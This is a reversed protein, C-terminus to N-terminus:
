KAERVDVLMARVAIRQLYTGTKEDYSDCTILTLYAKDEHRLVTIDNPEVFENSVVKYTYRYGLNYVFIYEGSNLSKLNYLVGPKGNINIAHGMLVSNGTWTPYATGNLWGVQNQLWSVDWDGDKLQIGVIPTKVKLVPIEITLGISNYAPRAEVDLRTVTNPAFGTVPILFLSGGFGSSSPSSNGRSRNGGGGEGEDDDGTDTGNGDGGGDGGLPTFTLSSSAHYFNVPSTPDYFRETAFPNPPTSFSQPATRNGPISTWEVNAVNTVIGNAPITANGVVNFRVIGRANAPLRTFTSWEARITRTVADYACSVDPDQEGASCDLSNTVYDLSTPLVDSVVVDFADTNSAATNSIVLTITAASGNAVFNVNATKAITLNPELITVAAQAPGFSGVSSSWAASNNLTEGDVNTAIDLVAARYTLTLTVFDQGGNELTGLEFTVRRDVDAPDTSLTPLVNPNACISPFGGAVDTTLGPADISDCGVFALGQQMTDVITANPYRGPPILVSVQYTIIEGIAANFGNTFTESTGTIAKLFGNTLVFGFDLSPNHTTGTANTVTTSAGSVGPTLSVVNSSVQGGATGVGNDNNNVNNNPTNTDANVDVTSTYGLPPTVKVIYDGAPLGSFLYIGGADTLVGGAADDATGLIGDPGVNIETGNSSYLQVVAGALLTDGADYTGSNNVDVFVLDGLSGRYFGFDVTMNARNDATGQGYTSLDAEGTPEDTGPGLTVAASAVYNTASGTISSIGNDDSDDVDVDADNATGDNIVGGNGITTESSWYGALPNGSVTDGAGVDRFNDAPILAVYNGASLNDFRYYGDADTTAYGLFSDTADYVGPTGGDDRYLEVRVGPIGVEAGNIAGNNDTDFWVRNGLSYDGASNVVLTDSAPNNNSVPSGGATATLGGVPITNVYTGPVSSSVSVSITCNSNGDLAGDNLAITQFGALATLTGGCNNVPLPAPAGAIELGTPLTGPLNDTLAMGVLPINSTNQITITLTSYGGTLITNPDFSKSVSAGPLNTLSAETPQTSSVGNATTVAGAPIRNTLNGNVSMVVRLTLTCDTNAALTGNSFSFSSDGPNGTLAGGCTGEDFNVPDALEIGTGLLTMDDTFAIGTLAINNPNVLQVSMTSYAGGYVLVPDFGKVVGITLIQTRLVAVADAIPNITTGTSQVTSSVNAIPITNTRNSPTANSDNGQITVTITCAGPIGGVQAPVTGGTMTITQSGPNATVSGGICTTSANPIPAVVVGNTVSGPLPDTLVTNILPSPYTNQLTITLTSLGGPNVTPPFFAKTVSLNEASNVTLTDTLNGSPNRGETNSIDDPSITNLVTGPTSSTVWVNIRCRTGALITGGTLSIFTAGTNATLVRPPTAGCNNVSAPTTNSVTVGAPLYDTISFNTLDTDAPAFLDIRLRTSQGIDIPDPFFTKVSNPMGTGFEYVSVDATAEIGNTINPHSAIDIAGPLITNTYTADTASIPTTVDVTITCSSNPPITGGTLTVTTSTNSVTGSICTTAASSAVYTLNANPIVPLTDSISVGTYTSNTLNQLTITLTNTGGAQFSSYDFQKTVNIPQVYLTAEAPDANTVGQDTKVSGPTNPGAPITNLYVDQTASTVNVTVVCNQGPTVTANTLAITNGGPTAALLASGGCNTLPTTGVAPNALVVGAPLTDTFSTGTLNTNADNNNLTITLTSVDGMSITNPSFGKSISPPLVAVVTLTASAPTTNSITVPTGGDNGSANLSAAPITNILNGPVTSTVNIEVYCEGPIVQVQAPVTGGSLSLLTTGPVATVSGGCTNNVLGPPAIVLGSQVSVLNDTWSTNTLPFTNPNFVTVRLVSIAGADILIPTFQKNIEAPIAIAYVTQVPYIFLSGTLVVFLFLSRFSKFMIYRRVLSSERSTPGKSLFFALIFLFALLL